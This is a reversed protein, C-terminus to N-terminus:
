YRWELEVLGYVSFFISAAAWSCDETNQSDQSVMFHSSTMRRPIRFITGTDGLVPPLFTMVRHWQHWEAKHLSISLSSKYSRSNFFPVLQFPRSFALHIVSTLISYSDKEGTPFETLVGGSKTESMQFFHNNLHHPQTSVASNLNPMLNFCLGLFSMNQCKCVQKFLQLRFIKHKQVSPHYIM